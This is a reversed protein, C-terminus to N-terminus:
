PWIFAKGKTRVHEIGCDINHDTVDMGDLAAGGSSGVDLIHVDVASLVIVVAVVQLIARVYLRHIRGM